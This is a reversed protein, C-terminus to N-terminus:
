TYNVIRDGITLWRKLDRNDPRIVLAKRWAEMAKHTQDLKAYAIGLYYHLHFREPHTMAAPALVNIAEQRKGSLLLAKGLLTAVGADFPHHNQLSVLLKVAEDLQGLRTHALGLNMQCTYDDQGLEMARQLFKVAKAYRKQNVLQIGTKRELAGPADDADPQPSVFHIGKLSIPDSQADLAALLRQATAIQGMFLPRTSTSEGDQELPDAASGPNAM